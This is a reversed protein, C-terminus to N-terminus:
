GLLSAVARYVDEHIEQPQRMAGGAVCDVTKWNPELSLREASEFSAARLPVTALLLLVALLKKM